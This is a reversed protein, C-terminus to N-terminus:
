EGNAKLEQALRDLVAPLDTEITTAEVALVRYGREGLWVRRDNRAKAAVDSEQVPLIDIVM